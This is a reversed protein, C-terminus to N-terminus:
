TILGYDLYSDRTNFSPTASEVTSSPANGANYNTRTSRAQRQPIMIPVISVNQNNNTAVSINKTDNLGRSYQLTEIKSLGEESSIDGNKVQEEIMSVNREFQQLDGTIQAFTESPVSDNPILESPTRGLLSAYVSASKYAAFEVSNMTALKIDDLSESQSQMHTRLISSIIAQEEDDSYERHSISDNMRYQSTIPLAFLPLISKEKWSIAAVTSLNFIYNSASTKINSFSSVTVDKAYDSFGMESMKEIEKYLSVAASASEKIGYVIFDYLFDVVKEFRIFNYVKEGFITGVVIAIIVAPVGALIGIGGTTAAASLTFASAITLLAGTPGLTKLIENIQKKAITHFQEETLYGSMWEIFTDKVLGVGQFAVYSIYIPKLFFKYIKDTISKPLKKFWEKIDKFWQPTKSEMWKFFAASRDINNGINNTKADKGSFMSWVESSTPPPLNGGLARTLERAASYNRYVMATHAVAAGIQKERTLAFSAPLAAKYLQETYSFVDGLTTETLPKPTEEVSPTDANTGPTGTDTDGSISDIESAKAEESSLAMALTLAAVPLLFPKVISKVKGALGKGFGFVSSGAKKMWSKNEIDKEKKERKSTVRQKREEENYKGIAAELKAILRSQTSLESEVKAVREIILNLHIAYSDTEPGLEPVIRKPEVKVEKIIDSLKILKLPLISEEKEPSYVIPIENNSKADESTDKKDFFNSIFGLGNKLFIGAAGGAGGVAALGALLGGQKKSGAATAEPKGTNRPKGPKRAM